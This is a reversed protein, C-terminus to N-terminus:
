ILNTSKIAFHLRKVEGKGMKCHRAHYDLTSQTKLKRPGLGFLYIVEQVVLGLELVM